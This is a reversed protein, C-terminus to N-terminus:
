LSNFYFLYDSFLTDIPISILSIHGVAPHLLYIHCMGRVSMMLQDCSKRGSFPSQVEFDKM